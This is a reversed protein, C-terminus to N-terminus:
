RHTLSDLESAITGPDAGATLRHRAAAEIVAYRAAAYGLESATRSANAGLVEAITALGGTYRREVLRDAETSQSVSLAALDLQAIAVELERRATNLEVGASAAMAVEQTNAANLRARAAAMDALESGGGFLSWSAMVGLTLAPRGTYFGSPSNWDYRAVANLRPLMTSGARRLDLSAASTELRAARTDEREAQSELSAALRRVASDSPLMDPLEEQRPADSSSSRGLLVALLERASKANAVAGLLQARIGQTHVQAQLLDSRTVLGERLLRDVQQTMAEGAAAARELAHQKEVALIAGYYARVVSLRTSLTTWRANADAAGAAQNAAKYGLVADGNIIPLELVAGGQLNDITAPYNLREPLFDEQTVRRQRLSTGFAGIPDNSRIAGAEIRLAPLMGKLPTRASAHALEAQARAGQNAFAKQDAEALAARLGLQPASQALSPTATLFHFGACALATAYVYQSKM